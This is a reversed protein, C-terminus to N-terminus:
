IRNNWIVYIYLNTTKFGFISYIHDRAVSPWIMKFLKPPPLFFTLARQLSNFLLKHPTTRTVCRKSCNKNEYAHPIMLKQQVKLTSNTMRIRTSFYMLGWVSPSSIVLMKCFIYVVNSSASSIYKVDDICCYLYSNKSQSFYSLYRMREFYWLLYFLFGAERM